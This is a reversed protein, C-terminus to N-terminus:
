AQILNGTLPSMDVYTIRFRREQFRWEGDDCLVIDDHYAGLIMMGGGGKPRVIEQIASRATARAGEVVIVPAHNSQVCLETSSIAAAIGECLRESGEFRMAMAGAVAGGMDWVGDEAFVNKLEAWDRHNVADTYRNLLDLIAAHAAVNNVVNTTSM